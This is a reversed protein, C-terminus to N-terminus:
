AAVYRCLEDGVTEVRGEAELLDMHGITESLGLFYETLPLNGFYEWMIEYASMPEDEVFEFFEEKRTEHHTIVEELRFKLDRITAGHGPHGVTADVSQLSRISSLYQPLSRHREGGEERPMQLTPNPTIHDLVHDGTFLVEREGWLFAIGGASHGPTEICELPVGVDVVGGDALPRNVETPAHFRMYPEPVKTVAEAIEDPVGHRKVFPTFYKRERYFYEDPANVKQVAARHIMVDAGSEERIRGALGFHDMHAHTILVTDVDAIDHGLGSLELALADYAEVFDPGPDILTLEGADIVYCNVTGVGFPTPIELTSLGAM